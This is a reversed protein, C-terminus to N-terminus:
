NLPNKTWVSGATPMGRAKKVSTKGWIESSLSACAVRAIKRSAESAPPM